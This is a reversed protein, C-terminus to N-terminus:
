DKKNEIVDCELFAFPLKSFSKFNAKRNFYVKTHDDYKITCTDKVYDYFVKGGAPSDKLQEIM